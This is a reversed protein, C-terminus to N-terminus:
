LHMSRRCPRLCKKEMTVSQLGPLHEKKHTLMAQNTTLPPLTMQTVPTQDAPRKAKTITTAEMLHHLETVQHIAKTTVQNRHTTRERTPVDTQIMHVLRKQKHTWKHAMTLAINVIMMELPISPQMLSSTQIMSSSVHSTTQIMLSSAHSTVPSSVTLTNTGM